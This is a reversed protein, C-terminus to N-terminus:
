EFRYALYKFLYFSNTFAHIQFKNCCPLLLSIHMIMNGERQMLNSGIIDGVNYILFYRFPFESINKPNCFVCFNQTSAPEAPTPSSLQHSHFTQSASFGGRDQLLLTRKPHGAYWMGQLQCPCLPGFQRNFNKGSILEDCYRYCPSQKLEFIEANWLVRFILAVM